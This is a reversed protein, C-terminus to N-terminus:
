KWCESIQRALSSVRELSEECRTLVYKAYLSENGACHERVDCRACTDEKFFRNYLCAFCACEHYAIKFELWGPWSVKSFRPNEAVWEWMMKHLTQYVPKGATKAEILKAYNAIEIRQSETLETM